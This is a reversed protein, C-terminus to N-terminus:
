KADPEEQHIFPPFLRIRRRFGGRIRVLATAVMIGDPTIVMSSTGLVKNLEILIERM